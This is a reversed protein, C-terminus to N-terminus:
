LILNTIINPEIVVGNNFNDSVLITILSFMFWYLNICNYGAFEYYPHRSVAWKDKTFMLMGQTYSTDEGYLPVFLIYWYTCLIYISMYLVHFCVFM